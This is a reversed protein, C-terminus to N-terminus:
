YRETPADYELGCSTGGQYKEDIPNKPRGSDVL